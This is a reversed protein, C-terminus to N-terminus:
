VRRRRSRRKREADYTQRCEENDSRSCFRKNSRGRIFRQCRECRGFTKGSGLESLLLSWFLGQVGYARNIPLRQHLKESLERSRSAEELDTFDLNWRGAIDFLVQEEGGGLLQPLLWANFLSSWGSSLYSRSLAEAKQLAGDLDARSLAAVAVMDRQAKFTDLGGSGYPFVSSLRGPWRDHLLVTKVDDTPTRYTAWCSGELVNGGDHLLLVNCSPNDHSVVIAALKLAKLAIM